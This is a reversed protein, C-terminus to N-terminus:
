QYPYPIANWDVLDMTTLVSDFNMLETRVVGLDPSLYFRKPLGATQPRALVQTVGFFTNSGVVLSDYFAELTANYITQGIQAEGLFIYTGVLDSQSINGRSFGQEFHGNLSSNFTATFFEEKYTLVCGGTMNGTGGPEDHEYITRLINQQTVTDRSADSVNEYIWMSGNTFLYDRLKVSLKQLGPQVCPRPPDEEKCAAVLLLLCILSLFKFSKM